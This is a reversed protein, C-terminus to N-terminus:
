DVSSICVMPARRKREVPLSLMEIDHDSPDTDEPATMIVRAKRKRIAPTLAVPTQYFDNDDDETPARPTSMIAVEDDSAIDTPRRAVLKSGVSEIM